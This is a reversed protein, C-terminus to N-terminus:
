SITNQVLKYVPSRCLPCVCRQSTRKNLVTYMCDWCFQHGCTTTLINPTQKTEMCIPCEIQTLEETHKRTIIYKIENTEHNAPAARLYEAYRYVIFNYFRKVTHYQLHTPINRTYIINCLMACEAETPEPNTESIIFQACYNRYLQPINEVNHTWILVNGRHLAEQASLLNRHEEMHYQDAIVVSFIDVCMKKSHKTYSTYSYKSLMIRLRNVDITQLWDIITQFPPFRNVMQRLQRVSNMIEPDNCSRVNHGLNKCYGCRTPARQRKPAIPGIPHIVVPTDGTLDIIEAM